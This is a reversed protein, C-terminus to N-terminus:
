GSRHRFVADTPSVDDLISQNAHFASAYVLRRGAGNDVPRMLQQFADAKVFLGHLVFVHDGGFIGLEDVIAHPVALQALRKVAKTSTVWSLTVPM